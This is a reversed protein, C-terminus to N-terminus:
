SFAMGAAERVKISNAAARLNWAIIMGNLLIEGM